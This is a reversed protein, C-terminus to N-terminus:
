RSDGTAADGQRRIAEPPASASDPPPRLRGTDRLPRREGASDRPVALPPRPTIRGTDSLPRPEGASDRPVALPPRPPQPTVTGPDRTSARLADALAPGRVGSALRERVIAALPTSASATGLRVWAVFVARADGATVGHLHLADLTERLESESLGAARADQAARPLEIARLLEAGLSPGAAEQELAPPRATIALLPAAAVTAFVLGLVIRRRMRAGGARQRM